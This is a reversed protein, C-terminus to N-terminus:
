LHRARFIDVVKNRGLPVPFRRSKRGNLFQIFSVSFLYLSQRDGFHTPHTLRYDYRVMGPEIVSPNRHTVSRERV